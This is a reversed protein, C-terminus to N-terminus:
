KPNGPELGLWLMAKQLWTRENEPIDEISSRWEGEARNFREISVYDDLRPSYILNPDDAGRQRREQKAIWHQGYASLYLFTLANLWYRLDTFYMGFARLLHVWYYNVCADFYAWM